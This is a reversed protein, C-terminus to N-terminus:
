AGPAAQPAPLKKLLPVLDQVLYVQDEYSKPVRVAVNVARDSTTYTIADGREDTVLPFGDIILPPQRQDPLPVGCQLTIAPDGWAATRGADGTVQRRRVDKDLEDPLTGVLTACARSVLSASSSPAPVDVPGTARPAPAGPESTCAV